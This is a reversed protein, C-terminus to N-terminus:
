LKLQQLIGAADEDDIVPTVEFSILDAWQTVWKYIGKPDDTEALLFGRNGGLGHWRGLMTVGSPPQGGTELFRAARAKFNATELPFSIMYKM